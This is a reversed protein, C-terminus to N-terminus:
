SHSQSYCLGDNSLPQFWTSVEDGRMHFDPTLVSRHWLSKLSRCSWWGQTHARRWPGSPCSHWCPGLHCSPLLSWPGPVCCSDRLSLNLLQRMMSWFKIADGCWTVLFVLSTAKGLAAMHESLLLPCTFALGTSYPCHLM